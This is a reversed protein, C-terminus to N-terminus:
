SVKAGSKDHSLLLQGKTASLLLFKGTRSSSQVKGAKLQPHLLKKMQVLGVPFSPSLQCPESIQEDPHSATQLASAQRNIDRKLILQALQGLPRNALGQPFSSNPSLSLSSLVM